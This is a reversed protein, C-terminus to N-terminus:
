VFQRILGPFSGSEAEDKISSVPEPISPLSSAESFENTPSM